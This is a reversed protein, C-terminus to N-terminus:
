NAADVAAGSIAQGSQQIDQGAGAVTNCSVLALSGLGAVFLAILKLTKM